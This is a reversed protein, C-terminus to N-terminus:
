IGQGAFGLFLTALGDAIHQRLNNDRGVILAM